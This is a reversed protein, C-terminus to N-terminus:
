HFRLSKNRTLSIGKRPQFNVTLARNWGGGFFILVNSSPKLFESYFFFFFDIFFPGTASLSVPKLNTKSMKRYGCFIDVLPLASPDARSLFITLKALIGM